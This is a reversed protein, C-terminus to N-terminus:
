LTFYFVAVDRSIPSINDKNMEYGIIKMETSVDKDHVTSAAQASTQMLKKKRELEIYWGIYQTYMLVCTWGVQREKQPPLPTKGKYTHEYKAIIELFSKLRMHYTDMTGHAQKFEELTYTAMSHIMAFVTVINELTKHYAETEACWAHYAKIWVMRVGQTERTTYVKMNQLIGGFYEVYKRSDDKLLLVNTGERLQNLIKYDREFFTKIFRTEVDMFINEEQPSPYKVGPVPKKVSSVFKRYADFCQFFNGVVTNKKTDDSEKSAEFAALQATATRLGVVVNTTKAFRVYEIERYLADFVQQRESESDKNFHNHSRLEAGCLASSLENLTTHFLHSAQIFDTQLVLRIKDVLSDIEQQIQDYSKASHPDPTLDDSKHYKSTLSLITEEPSLARKRPLKEEDMNQRVIAHSSGNGGAQVVAYESANESADLKPPSSPAFFPQELDAYGQTFDPEFDDFNFDDFNSM